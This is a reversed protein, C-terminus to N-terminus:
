KSKKMLGVANAFKVYADIAVATQPGLKEWDKATIIDSAIGGAEILDLAVQAKQAGIKVRGESAVEVLNVVPIVAPLVRLFKFFNKM